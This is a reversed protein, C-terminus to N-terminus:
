KKLTEKQSKRDKLDKKARAMEKCMQFKKIDKKVNEIVIETRGEHGHLRKVESIKMFVTVTKIDTLWTFAGSGDDFIVGEAVVGTGSNNHIDEHRLMYFTKM